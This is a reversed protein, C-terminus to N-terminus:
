KLLEKLRKMEDNLLKDAAHSYGSYPILTIKVNGTKTDFYAIGGL